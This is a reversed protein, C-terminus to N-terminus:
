WHSRGQVRIPLLLLSGGLTSLAREVFPGSTTDPHNFCGLLSFILAGRVRERSWHDEFHVEQVATTAVRATPGAIQIEVVRGPSVSALKLRLIAKKKGKKKKRSRAWLELIKVYLLKYITVVTHLKGDRGEETEFMLINFRNNWLFFWLKRLLYYQNGGGTCWGLAPLWM